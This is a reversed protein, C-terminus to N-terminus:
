KPKYSLFPSEIYRYSLYSITFIIALIALAYSSFVAGVALSGQGAVWDRAVPLFYPIAVMVLVTNHLVFMSYSIMGTFALFRWRLVARLLPSGLVVSTFFAITILEVINYILLWSTQGRAEAVLPHKMGLHDLAVISAAGILFIAMSLQALRLQLRSEPRSNLYEVLMRLLVGALCIYVYYTSTGVSVVYGSLLSSPSSFDPIIQAMSAYLRGALAIFAFVGFLALRQSVRTLKLVIFPLLCYFVIEPTLSWWAPDLSNITYPTFSQLFLAHMLVDIASFDIPYPPKLPWLIVVVLIAVYYAPVLRFVRRLVYSRVSYSGSRARKGEMWSLLYGSLLFFLSVGGSGWFTILNYVDVDLRPIALPAGTATWFGAIHTMVAGLIAIGRLSDLEVYHDRPNDITKKAM